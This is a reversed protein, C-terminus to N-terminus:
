SSVESEDEIMWELQEKINHIFKKALDRLKEAVVMDQLAAFHGTVHGEIRYAVQTENDSLKKLAVSGTSKLNDGEAEWALKEFERYETTHTKMQVTRSFPGLSVRVTWISDLDNLVKVGKCGPFLCGVEHRDSMFSWVIKIPLRITFTHETVPM